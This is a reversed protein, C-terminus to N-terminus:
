VWRPITTTGNYIFGGDKVKQKNELLFVMVKTGRLPKQQQHSREREEILVMGGRTRVIIELNARESSM